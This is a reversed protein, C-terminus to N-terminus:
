NDFPTLDITRIKQRIYTQEDASFVQEFKSSKELTEKAKKKWSEEPLVFKEAAARYDLMQDSFKLGLEDCLRSLNEKPEDVLQEYKVFSHNRVGVSRKSITIDRKWRRICQSKSRAGAFFEPDSRSAEYLSAVVDEGSRILHVFMTQPAILTILDTFYLHMPTKELWISFGAATCIDDLIRLLSKAWAKQSWTHHPLHRVLEPHEIRELFSSIFSREAAGYRKVLRLWWRKPVTGRFFHTEPFSHIGPHSALMSQLLTTGSRAAGVVFIRKRIQEKSTTM